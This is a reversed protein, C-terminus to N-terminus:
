LFYVDVQSVEIRILLLLSQAACTKATNPSFPPDALGLSAVHGLAAKFHSLSTLGQCGGIHIHALLILCLYVCFAVAQKLLASFNFGAPCFYFKARDIKHGGANM